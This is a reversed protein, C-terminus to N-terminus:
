SQKQPQIQPEIKEFDPPATPDTKQGTSKGLPSNDEIVKNMQGATLLIVSSVWFWFLLIMVGGLSGYTKDYNGFNQVYLAFLFSGLLFMLTGILSGPTIWEWSQDADPGVYFTLAFSLLVMVVIVIWRVATAVIAGGFSLGLWNLILPWAVIALLSGVLIVAQILTMAIATLRLKWFPRTEEVGYVRNMADIVAMFLSSALWVAIGLGVTLLALPPQKQIRDIQDTMVKDIVQYGEEPVLGRVTSHLQDVTLNGVGEEGTVPNPLMQVSLTLIVALFPVCALMAYFSVAAARTLIENEQIKKWTRSVLERPSLGGLSLAERLRLPPFVDSAEKNKETKIALEAIV